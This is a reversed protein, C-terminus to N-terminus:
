KTELKEYIDGIFPSKAVDDLDSLFDDLDQYQQPKAGLWILPQGTERNSVNGSQFFYTKLGDDWGIFCDEDETLAGDRPDNYVAYINFRSM